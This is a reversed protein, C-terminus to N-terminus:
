AEDRVEELILLWNGFVVVRYQGGGCSFTGALADLWRWGRGASFVGVAERGSRAVGRWCERWCPPPAPAPCSEPEDPAPDRVPPM